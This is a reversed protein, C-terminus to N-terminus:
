DKLFVQMFVPDHDSYKYSSNTNSYFNVRVNDSVIFGDPTVTYTTDPNYPENADRCSNHEINKPDAFEIALSFGEPIMEKPFPRAWNPVNEWDDTKLNQNFDGGCIVYNGLRYENEMDEFLMSLQAEKLSEDDTYASLHVNYLVLKKENACPIKSVIYCRDYDIVRSISESIPLSRRVSESIPAKSYTVQVAKNAGHPQWFPYFLFPSDYATGYNYYYGKVLTNLLELENLHYTRTGDVDVEQLMIFDAGSNNILETIECMNAMLGEESLAWSYKGGDMFFSYDPTYAGFGINYTLFNYAKGTNIVENDQFYSYSGTTATDLYLRDPVRDFSKFVYFLYGGVILLLIGLIIVIRIIHKKM